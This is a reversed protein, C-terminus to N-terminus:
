NYEEDPFAKKFKLYEENKQPINLKAKRYWDLAEEYLEDDFFYVKTGGYKKYRGEIRENQSYNYLLKVKQPNDITDTDFRFARCDFEDYKSKIKQSIRLQASGNEKCPICMAYKKGGFYFGNKDGDRWDNYHETVIPLTCFDRVEKPSVEQLYQCYFHFGREAHYLVMKWVNTLAEYYTDPAKKKFLRMGDDLKLERVYVEMEYRTTTPRFFSKKTVLAIAASVILEDNYAVLRAVGPNKKITKEFKFHWGYKEFELVNDPEHAAMDLLKQFNDAQSLWDEKTKIHEPPTIFYRTYEALQTEHKGFDLNVILLGNAVADICNNRNLWDNWSTPHYNLQIEDIFYEPLFISKLKKPNFIGSQKHEEDDSIFHEIELAQNNLVYDYEETTLFVKAQTRGSVRIIGHSYHGWICAAIELNNVVVIEQGGVIINQCTLNGLVYLGCSGDDNYNYINKATFNGLCVIAYVEYGTIGEKNLIDFCHEIHDLDLNGVVADEEILLITLDAYGPVMSDLRFYLFSDTPLFFKIEIAKVLKM